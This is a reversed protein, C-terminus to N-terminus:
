EKNLITSGFVILIAFVYAMFIGDYFISAFILRVFFLVILMTLIFPIKILHKMEKMSPYIMYMWFFMHLICFLVYCAGGKSAFLAMAQASADM